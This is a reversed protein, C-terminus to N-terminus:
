FAYLLGQFDQAAPPILGTFKGRKKGRLKAQADSFKIVSQIGTSIQLIRNFEESARKSFQVKAQVVKSKVDLQDLVEKVAKVNSLADDVFYMDNYGEAFKEVMWEAKAEGTSNGLGTINNISININKSKLWGHIASAAEPPRATLVFVNKAGFKKIQNRMKQLLPGDVGGRVNVFDTFDFKFGQKALEPGQIPWAASSIKITEKGKTAIIFNKGDIILTEDFDFTSMGKPNRYNSRVNSVAIDVIKNKNNGLSNQLSLTREVYEKNQSTKYNNYVHDRIRANISAKQGDSLKKGKADLGYKFPLSEGNNLIINSLNIGSHAYRIIPDPLNSYGEKLRNNFVNIYEQPFGQKYLKDIKINTEKTLGVQYYNEKVFPLVNNVEGRVIAQFLLESM